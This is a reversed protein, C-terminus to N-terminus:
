SLLEELVEIPYSKVTGFREDSVVGMKLNREKCIKTAKVGIAKADSVPLKIGVMKCHATVTRYGTASDLLHLKNEVVSLRREQEVMKQCQLLMMELSTVPKTELELWRDIIKLRLDARYGAVLALTLNKPLKYGEQDRGYQDSFICGFSSPDIKLEDLMNKIDRKVHFHQKECLDAIERSSMSIESQEFKVLNM